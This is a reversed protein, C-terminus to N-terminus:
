FLKILGEFLASPDTPLLLGAGVAITNNVLHLLYSAWFNQKYKTYRYCLVLAIPLYLLIDQLAFMHVWTFLGASLWFFLAYLWKPQMPIWKLIAVRFVIEEVFPAYIVSAFLYLLTPIQKQLEFLNKQNEGLTEVNLLPQFLFLLGARLVAVLVILLLSRFLLKSLRVQVQLAHWDEQLEKYFLAVCLVFLPITQLSVLQVNSILKQKGLAQTGLMIIWFAIFVLAYKLLRDKSVQVKM